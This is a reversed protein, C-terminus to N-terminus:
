KGKDINQYISQIEEQTLFSKEILGDIIRHLYDLNKEIIQIVELFMKQLFKRTLGEIHSAESPSADGIIVALNNSALNPTSQEDSLGWRAFMCTALQSAAELDTSSGSASVEQAGLVLYEAARGALHLRIKFEIDRISLDNSISEHSEFPQVVMGHADGYSLVSCSFPPIKERSTLHSILAHGAEHVAHRYRQERPYNNIDSDATGHIAFHVLDHYEVRRSERRALRKLAIEMLLRRRQDPYVQRILCAVRRPNQTISPGLDNPGFGAVFIEFIENDTKQPVQLRRDFYGVARLSIDLQEHSKASTVFVWPKSPLEQEFFDKLTALVAAHDAANLEQGASEEYFESFNRSQWPGAPLFILTPTALIGDCSERLGAPVSNADLEIFKMGAEQAVLQTLKKADEEYKAELVVAQGLLAWSGAPPRSEIAAKLDICWAEVASRAPACPRPSSVNAKHPLTQDKRMAGRRPNIAFKSSLTTMRRFTDCIPM